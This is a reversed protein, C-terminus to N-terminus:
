GDIAPVGACYMSRSFLPQPVTIMQVLRYDSEARMRDLNVPQLLGRSRELPKECVPMSRGDVSSTRERPSRLHFYNSLNPSCDSGHGLVNQVRM